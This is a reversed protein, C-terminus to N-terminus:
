ENLKHMESLNSFYKQKENDSNTLSDIPRFLNQPSNKFRSTRVLSKVETKPLKSGKFGMNSHPKYFSKFMTSAKADSNNTSQPFGSQNTFNM